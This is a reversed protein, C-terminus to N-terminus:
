DDQIRGSIDEFNGSRILETISVSGTEENKGHKYFDLIATNTSGLGYNTLALSIVIDDHFGEPASYKVNGSPTINYEFLELEDILAQIPPFRIEMNDMSVSLNQILQQKSGSTFKYPIVNINQMKLDDYITDGVGTSDLVIKGRNFREWLSIIRQKQFTWDIQNFRDMHVVQKTQMEAVTAVTFDRHKALDIGIVYSRGETGKNLQVDSICQQINRFVMGAGELFEALYEQRWVEQPVQTKIKNLEDHEWFPSDYASFHYQSFDPDEKRMFLDYFKNRGKPTGIVKVRTDKGKFMPQLTNDWLSPKKLIIGGENLVSRPYHFGEMNEPREASGFDIYSGRPLHLIKKQQNWKIYQQIPKLM